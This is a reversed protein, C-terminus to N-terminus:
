SGRILDTCHPIILCSRRLGMWHIIKLANTLFSAVLVFGGVELDEEVDWGVLMM